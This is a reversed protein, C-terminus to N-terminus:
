DFSAMQTEIKAYFSNKDLVRVNFYRGDEVNIMEVTVRELFSFSGKEKGQSESVLKLAKNWIGLEKSKAQQEM